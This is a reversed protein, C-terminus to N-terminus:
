EQAAFTETGDTAIGAGLPQVEALLRELVAFELPKAMHHDFGAERSLSAEESGSYGTFAVLVARCGTSRLTRAVQRGDMGPLGIDLLVVDPAFSQVAKLASLGDNAVCSAHGQIRLLFALTDASDINDDVVLVKLSTREANADM